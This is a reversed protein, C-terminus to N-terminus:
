VGLERVATKLARLMIDIAPNQKKKKCCLGIKRSYSPNNFPIFVVNGTSINRLHEGLISIGGSRNNIEIAIREVQKFLKPKELSFGKERCMGDIIAWMTDFYPSSVYLLERGKIDALDLDDKVALADDKYCLVGMREDFLDYFKLQEAGSFAINPMIIADALNDMLASILNDPTDTFFDIDLSQGPEIYKPANKLYDSIAYDPIGIRISYPKGASATQVSAILREYSELFDPLLGYMAKGEATLQVGQTSRHLLQVGLDKELTQIHRSLVPQTIFLQKAAVGYNLVKGLIAFEKIYEIHM